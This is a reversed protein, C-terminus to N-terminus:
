SGRSRDTIGSCSISTQSRPSCPSTRRDRPLQDLLSMVETLMDMRNPNRLYVYQESLVVAARAAGRADGAARFADIAQELAAVSENGRGAELAAEGFGALAEARGSHGPPTLALAREFSGVAATSDLGLARRGAFTLFRLAPAELAAARELEDASRALELATAFHHALM